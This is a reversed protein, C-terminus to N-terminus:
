KDDFTNQRRPFRPIDMGSTICLSVLYRMDDRVLQTAQEAEVDEIFLEDDYGLDAVYRRAARTLETVSYGAWGDLPTRAFIIRDVAKREAATYIYDEDRRLLKQLWDRIHEYNRWGHPEALLLEIKQRLQEAERREKKISAMAVEKELPVRRLRSHILSHSATSYIQNALLLSLGKFSPVNFFLPTGAGRCFITKFGYTNCAMIEGHGPLNDKM